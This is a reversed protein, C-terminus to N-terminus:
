EWMQLISFGNTSVGAFLYVAMHVIPRYGDVIWNQYLAERITHYLGYACDDSAIHYLFNMCLVFSLFAAVFLGAAWNGRVKM